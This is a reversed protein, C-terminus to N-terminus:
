QLSEGADTASAIPELRGFGEQPAVKHLIM